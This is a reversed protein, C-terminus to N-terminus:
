PLGEVFFPWNFKTRGDTSSPNPKSKRVTAARQLTQQTNYPEPLQQTHDVSQQGFWLAISSVKPGFTRFKEETTHSKVTLPQKHQTREPRQQTPPHWM